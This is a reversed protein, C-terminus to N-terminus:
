FAARLAATLTRGPLLTANDPEGTQVDLLNAGTLVVSFRRTVDRSVSASLHTVGAYGRWFARLQPGVLAADPLASRALALRDYNIWDAARSVQGSAAWPGARWSAFAGLTRAPVQLMRDGPQLDGQYGPATADVRSNVLALTAGLALPGTQVAAEFEWGRNAIEGVNQISYYLARPGRRGRGNGGGNGGGNGNNGNGNGNNGNGSSGAGTTAGSPWGGPPPGAVEQLLGRARQDFRTVSASVTPTAPGGGALVDLGFEAGHQSEPALDPAFARAGRWGASRVATRAPRLGRGVATRFKLTAGGAGAGGAIPQVAAVGLSPLAALRSADTFGDNREGRLGLTVFLREDAALTAQGVLGATGLWAVPRGAVEGDPMAPTPKPTTKWLGPGAAREPRLPARDDRPTLLSVFRTGDSTADRLLGYDALATITARLRRSLPMSLASSARLTARTATGTAARQASDLPIPLAALDSAVGALSYADVGATLTHTWRDGAARAATVGVTLQNLRQGPITFASPPLPTTSDGPQTSLRESPLLPNPAASATASALRATATVIGTGGIRRANGLATLRRAAAGPVYPGLTSASLALGATRSGTGARLVLAHDQALAPGAGYTGAAAGFSTRGSVARASGNSAGDHRTVVNIVGSIADAGYLAAGQPGRIVEVRAIRDPPLDTVVLPNALEVGDLYMKPANVGFSSAGRLSGYRALLTSPPQSWLWVGPVRADLVRALPATGAGAPGGAGLTAGDLVNLAYPLRRAPAASASGTVVVRDLVPIPRSPAAAAPALVVQDDGVGVASVGADGVLRALAAGLPLATRIPCTPRDLPLLEPSYSLRVRAAAAVRDLAQRLPVRARGPTPAVVRDFPPAWAGSSSPGSPQGAPEAACAAAPPPAPRPARQAYPAQAGAPPADPTGHAALGVGLLAAARRAKM